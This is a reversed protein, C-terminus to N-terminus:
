FLGMVESSDGAIGGVEVAAEATKRTQISLLRGRAQLIGVDGHGAQAADARPRHLRQRAAADARQRQDVQVMDGFGVDVPLDM